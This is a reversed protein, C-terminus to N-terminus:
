LTIGDIGADLASSMRVKLTEKPANMTLKEMCNIFVQGPGSKRAMTHEVHLRTAEALDDLNFKIASKDESAMNYKYMAQKAKVFKTKYRRDTVTKIMADSIHGVGGLRAAELALDASSIDVGMGGIMIPVMEQRGMKLRFDELRRM